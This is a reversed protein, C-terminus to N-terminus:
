IKRPSRSLLIPIVCEKRPCSKRTKPKFRVTNDIPKDGAIKDTSVDVFHIPESATVVTTVQENVTIQELEQYTQQANMEVSFAASLFLVALRIGKKKNM